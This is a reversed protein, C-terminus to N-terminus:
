DVACIGHEYWLYAYKRFHGQPDWQVTFRLHSFDIDTLRLDEKEHSPWVTFNSVGKLVRWRERWRSDDDLITHQWVNSPVLDQAAKRGGEAGKLAVMLMVGWFYFSFPSWSWRYIEYRVKTQTNEKCFRAIAPLLPTHGFPYTSTICVAHSQITVRTLWVIRHGSMPAVFDLFTQEASRAQKSPEDEPCQAQFAISNYKIELGATEAYLQKNVFKLQNFEQVPELADLKEVLIGLKLITGMTSSTADSRSHYYLPEPSILAYKFIWNRLEGPLDLLPSPTQM